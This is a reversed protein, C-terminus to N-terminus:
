SSDPRPPTRNPAPSINM